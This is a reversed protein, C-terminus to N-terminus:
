KFDEAVELIYYSCKRSQMVTTESVTSSPRSSPTPRDISGNVRVYLYGRSLSSFDLYFGEFCDDNKIFPTWYKSSPPSILYNAALSLVVANTTILTTSLNNIFHAGVYEWTSGNSSSYDYYVDIDQEILTLPFLGRMKVSHANIELEGASSITLKARGDSVIINMGDYAELTVSDGEYDFLTDSVNFYSLANLYECKVVSLNSTGEVTLNGTVTLSSIEPTATTPLNIEYSTTGVQIKDIKAM